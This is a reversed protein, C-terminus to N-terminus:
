GSILAKTGERMDDCCTLSVEAMDGEPLIGAMFSLYEGKCQPKM